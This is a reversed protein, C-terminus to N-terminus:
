NYGLVAVRVLASVAPEAGDDPLDLADADARRAALDVVKGRPERGDRGAFQSPATRKATETSNHAIM